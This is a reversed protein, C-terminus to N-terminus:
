VSRILTSQGDKKQYYLCGRSFAGNVAGMSFRAPNSLETLACKGDIQYGCDSICNIDMNMEGWLQLLTGPFPASGSNYTYYQVIKTQCAINSGKNM